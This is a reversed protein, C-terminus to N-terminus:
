HFCPDVSNEVLRGAQPKTLVGQGHVSRIHVSMLFAQFSKEVLQFIAMNKVEGDGQNRDRGRAEDGDVFELYISFRM